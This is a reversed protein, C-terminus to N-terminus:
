RRRTIQEQDRRYFDAILKDDFTFIVDPNPLEREESAWNVEGWGMEYYMTEVLEIHEAMAREFDERSINFHQVIAVVLNKYYPTSAIVYNYEDWCDFFEDAWGGRITHFSLRFEYSDMGHREYVEEESMQEIDEPAFFVERDFEFYEEWYSPEVAPEYPDVATQDTYNGTDRCATFLLAFLSLTVFLLLKKM